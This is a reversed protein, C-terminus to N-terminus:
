IDAKTKVTGEPLQQSIAKFYVKIVEWEELRDYATM